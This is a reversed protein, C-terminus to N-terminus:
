LNNAIGIVMVPIWLLIGLVGVVLCWWVRGMGALAGGSKRILRRAKLGAVVAIVSGIGM